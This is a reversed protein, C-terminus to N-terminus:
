ELIKPDKYNICCTVGPILVPTNVAYEIYEDGFFEVLLEEEEPIRDDFFMRAAFFFAPIGIPNNMM